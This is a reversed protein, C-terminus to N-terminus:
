ASGTDKPRPRSVMWGPGAAAGPRPAGDPEIRGPDLLVVADDAMRGWGWMRNGRSGTASVAERMEARIDALIAEMEPELVDPRCIVGVIGGGPLTMSGVDFADNVALEAGGASGLLIRFWMAQDGTPAPYFAVKGLKKEPMPDSVVSDAPILVTVAHRWGPRLEDPPDWRGLVRNTGEPWGRAKVFEETWAMRWRGSRHLSLKLSGTQSRPGLYVDDDNASGFLSWSQSRAGTRSGVAWRISGAGPRCRQPAPIEEPWEDKSVDPLTM